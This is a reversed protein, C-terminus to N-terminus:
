SEKGFLELEMERAREAARKVAQHFSTSVGNQELKEIAAQTTGGPSTVKKRLLCPDEGTQKVMNAAGLATQVTLQTATKEDLGNEIGVAILAEMMYYFYAPGSGSIGTVTDILKEEVIATDGVAQFLCVAQERKEESTGKSFSLGTMGYGISSSTNPMTRVIDTERGVIHKMARIPFGAIVSIILTKTQIHVKIQELANHVDKPKMALLLIDAQQICNVRDQPSFAPKIGYQKELRLLTEQNSRNIVSIQSPVTTKTQILGRIIAEAMAGAGVFCIKKGKLMSSNRRKEM